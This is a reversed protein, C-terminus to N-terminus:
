GRTPRIGDGVSSRRSGPSTSRTRSIGRSSRICVVRQSIRALFLLAVLGALALAVRRTWRPRPEPLLAPPPALSPPSEPSPTRILPAAPEAAVDAVRRDLSEVQIVPNAISYGRSHATRIISAGDVGLEGLTRRLISIARTLSNPSTAVGPWVEDLLSEKSVVSGGRELLTVLVAEVKPQLAIGREPWDSERHLTHRTRDLVVDAFCLYM